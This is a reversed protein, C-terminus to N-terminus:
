ESLKPTRFDLSVVGAPAQIGTGNHALAFTLVDGAKLVTHSLTGLDKAVWKTANTGSAFTLSAVAGVLAGARYLNVTAAFNNTAAGTVAADFTVKAAVVVVPYVADYVAVEADSTAGSMGAFRHQSLLPFDLTPQHQWLKM